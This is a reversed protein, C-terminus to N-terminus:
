VKCISIFCHRGALELARKYFANKMYKLDNQGRKAEFNYFFSTFSLCFTPKFDPYWFHLFKVSIEFCNFFIRLTKDFHLFNATKGNKNMMM